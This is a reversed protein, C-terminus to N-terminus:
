PRRGEAGQMQKTSHSTAPLVQQVVPVGDAYRLHRSLTQVMVRYEGAHPFAQMIAYRGPEIEQAHRRQQWTGPPEFVLVQVDRLGTIPQQTAADILTFTLATPVRASVPESGVDTRVIPPPIRDLWDDYNTTVFTTALRSLDRYVRDGMDEKQKGSPTLFEKFEIPLSHQAELELALSLKVRSSLSRIQELRAHSLKGKSVFFQLAANAFQDWGPCGGLQSVGAGIFPILKRQLAALRLAEPIKPIPEIKEIM